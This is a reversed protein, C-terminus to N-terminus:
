CNLLGCVCKGMGGETRQFQTVEQGGAAEEVEREEEEEEEKGMEGVSDEEISGSSRVNDQSLFFYGKGDVQLCM